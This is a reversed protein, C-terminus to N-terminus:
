RCSAKTVTPDGTGFAQIEKLSRFEQIKGTNISLNEIKLRRRATQKHMYHEHIHPNTFSIPTITEHFFGMNSLFGTNAQQHSEAQPPSQSTHVAQNREKLFHRIEKDENM